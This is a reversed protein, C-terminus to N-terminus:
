CGGCKYKITQVVGIIPVYMYTCITSSTCVCVFLYLHSSLHRKPIDLYVDVGANLLKKEMSSIRFYNNTNELFGVYSLTELGSVNSLPSGKQQWLCPPKTFNRFSCVCYLQISRLYSSVLVFRLPLQNWVSIVSINPIASLFERSIELM